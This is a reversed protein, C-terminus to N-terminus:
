PSCHKSQNFFQFYFYSIVWSAWQQAYVGLFGSSCSVRTGWHEDCCERCYGPCAPLRSTWRCVFPYPLQPV